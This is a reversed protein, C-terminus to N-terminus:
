IYFIGRRSRTTTKSEVKEEENEQSLLSARRTQIPNTGASGATTRNSRRLPSAVAAEEAVIESKRPMKQLKCHLVTLM